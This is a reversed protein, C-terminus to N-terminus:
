RNPRRVFRWGIVALGLAALMAGEPVLLTRLPMGVKTSIWGAALALGGFVILTIPSNKRIAFVVAGLGSLLWIGCILGEVSWLMVLISVPKVSRATIRATERVIRSACGGGFHNIMVAISVDHDPLYVMYATTGINGGGHGVARVGGAVRWGLRDLGLGHSGSGTFSQMQGLSASSIVKRHFLARTWRALDGATMFVGASGYTISDHSARPLNTVDRYSGDNKFDGEWVHALKEPYPEEMALRASHLGLPEWFRKRLEASLTSGTARTIIMSALLYNTNSYRYGQGPPFHPEKLYSLVEEPTFTKTRHRILDEWLKQNEWFMFLGSTHNLMQRITIAGNVHPYPPLWRGIPDELSLKGEEALQLALAAVMNKTISGVAFCMDPTMEVNDHSIGSVGQWITGDPLIVAVSAGKVGCRRLQEDLAAQLRAQLPRESRGCSVLGTLTFVLAPLLRRFKLIVM